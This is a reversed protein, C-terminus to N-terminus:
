IKVLTKMRQPHNFDTLTDSLQELSILGSILPRTNIINNKLIDIVQPFEDVYIMSGVIHLEKRVIMNSSTMHNQGPLGLLVIKGGPAALEIAHHLAAPSGSTEYIVDFCAQKDELMELGNVVQGAGMSGALELRSEVLDCATIGCDYQRVLQLVLQGIVGAGLILVNDSSCPIAFKVGHLAVALPEIFVADEDRMTDPVAWVSNEPVVIYEAFVGNRDIGLRLKEPCINPLGKLCQPCHGCSINPQIVVRQGVAYKSNASGAAEVIGIAEHGPIVPFPVHLKGQFLSSDSGCIGALRVRLLLENEEPVPMAVEEVKLTKNDNM